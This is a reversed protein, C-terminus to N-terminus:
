MLPGFGSGVHVQTGDGRLIWADESSERRNTGPVDVYRADGVLFDGSHPRTLVTGPSLTISSYVHGSRWDIVSYRAVETSTGLFTLVLTRSDDDSFAVLQVKDVHALREGTGSDFVDFGRGSWSGGADGIALYRGDRSAATGGDNFGHVPTAAMRGDSLRLTRVDLAAAVFTNALLARDDPVSCALAAPGGHPGWQGYDAVKRTASSVADLWLSGPVMAHMSRGDLPRGDRPRWECLHENDRAWTAQGALRLLVPVNTISHAGFVIFRTGDPSPDVGLPADSDIRLTGARHGNWDFAVLQSSHPSDRYWFVPTGAPLVGQPVQLIRQQLADAAPPTMTPSDWPTPSPASAPAVPVRSCAALSLAAVLVAVRCM